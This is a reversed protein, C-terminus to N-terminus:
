QKVDLGTGFPNSWTAAVTDFAAIRNWSNGNVTTFDGGVYLASGIPILVRCIDNLGTGFPNSWTNTTTTLVALRNYGSVGNVNTFKGGVYLISGITKM